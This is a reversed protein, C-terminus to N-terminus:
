QEMDKFYLKRVITKDPMTITMLDGSITYSCEKVSGDCFDAFRFTNGSVEMFGNSEDLWIGDQLTIEAGKLAEFVSVNWARDLASVTVDTLGTIDYRVDVTGDEEAPFMDSYDYVHPTPSSQPAMHTLLYPLPETRTIEESSVFGGNYVSFM